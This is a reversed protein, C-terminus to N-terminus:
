RKPWTGGTSILEDADSIGDGDTDWHLPNTGTVNVEEWDSLGDNDSDDDLAPHLTTSGYRHVIAVWGQGFLGEEEGDLLGDDDTDEDCPNTEGLGHGTSSQDLVTYNWVGNRNQDEYGDQLGDDDSDDDNVYTCGYAIELDDTLGDGDTDQMRPNSHDRPDSSATISGGFPLTVGAAVLRAAITADWTAVEISDMLTDDDTDADMPDTGYVNVEEYDTLYDNDMDSDLAPITMTSAPSGLSITGGPSGVVTSVDEPTVQTGFLGEEEGDSLGDGDTDSNCFDTEGSGHSTSDGITNTITGDQNADEYGDQLGDDDSDDDNVYPCSACPFASFEINDDLGDGDTDIMLPDAHDRPDSCDWTDVEQKDTLTDCDTDQVCFSTNYGVEDGDGLGDGDSDWVNPNPRRSGGYFGGAESIEDYDGLGDEDTDTKTYDTGTVTQEVVDPLGDGDLDTTMAVIAIELAIGAGSVIAAAIDSIPITVGAVVIVGGGTFPDPIVDAILSGAELGMQIAHLAVAAANLDFIMQDINVGGTGCGADCASADGPDVGPDFEGSRDVNASATSPLHVKDTPNFQVSVNVLIADATVEFDVCSPTAGSLGTCGIDGDPLLVFDGTLSVDTGANDDDEKTTATCKVGTATSVCGSLTTVTPRRMIGQAFAGASDAHIGDNATYDAQITDFAAMENLGTCVYDFKWRTLGPTVSYPGYVNNATSTGLVDTTLTISGWPSTAQGAGAIDEVTITCRSDKSAWDNNELKQNVLIPEMSCEVRTETPRLSVTLPQEAQENAHVPSGAYEATITATAQAPAPEVWPSAQDADTDWAFPTYTFTGIRNGGSTSWTVASFRDPVGAVSWRDDSLTLYTEDPTVYSGATTDDSLVIQCSIAQGIFADIPSCILQVDVARKIIQQVLVANPAAAHVSDGDYTATFTHPTTAGSSPTYAFTAQGAADLTLTIPTTMNGQDSPSVSVTVDGTPISPTGPSTDTVTVTFTGTDNVILPTDSGMITIVTARKDVDHEKTETATDFHSDGSYTATLTKDDGATLSTLTCSWSGDATSVDSICSQGEGDDVTVPGSPDGVGTSKVVYGSVTYQQGVLSPDPAHNFGPTTGAADTSIVVVGKNVDHSETATATNFNEDGSYTATLTKGAGAVLSALTCSWSGDSAVPSTCSQGEG